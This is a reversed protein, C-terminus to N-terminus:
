GVVEGLYSDARFLGHGLLVTRAGSCHPKDGDKWIM